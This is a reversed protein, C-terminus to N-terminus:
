FSSDKTMSGCVYRGWLWLLQPLLDTPLPLVQRSAVAEFWRPSCISRQMHSSCRHQVELASRLMCLIPSSSGTGKWIDYLIGRTACALRFSCPLPNESNQPKSSQCLVFKGCRRGLPSLFIGDLEFHWSTQTM